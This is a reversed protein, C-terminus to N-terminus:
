ETGRVGNQSAYVLANAAETMFEIASLADPLDADSPSSSNLNERVLISVNRVYYLLQEAGQLAETVSVEGNNPRFLSRYFSESEGIVAGNHTDILHTYKSM